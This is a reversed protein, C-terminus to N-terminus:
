ELRASTIRVAIRLWNLVWASTTLCVVTRL